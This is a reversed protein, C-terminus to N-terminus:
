ECPSMRHASRGCVHATRDARPLCTPTFYRAIRAISLSHILEPVAPFDFPQEHKTSSPPHGTEDWTKPVAIHGFLWRACENEARIQGAEM